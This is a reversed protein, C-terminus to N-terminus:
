YAMKYINGQNDIAVGSKIGPPPNDSQYRLFEMQLIGGKDGMYVGQGISKSGLINAVYYGQGYVADWAFALNPQPPYSEPTGPTKNNAFAVTWGKSKENLKLVDGNPLAWSALKVSIMGKKIKGILVPPSPQAALPGQVPYLRQPFAAVGGSLMSVILLILAFKVKV